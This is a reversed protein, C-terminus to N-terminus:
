GQDSGTAAPEALPGNVSFVGVPRSFGKLNMQGFPEARVQGAVHGQVRQSVLIQGGAAEACLRAALNTVNGIAGYDRRGDFGIAGITAYGQAVGIGMQLAYGRRQWDQALAVFRQQMALAMRMAAAAPNPIEVPDNFFVMMGDGAFRELTGQHAMIIEGMEAHYEGLVGMVEEPDATETFSTFGRLDLFL